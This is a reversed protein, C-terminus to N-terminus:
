LIYFLVKRQIEQSLTVKLAHHFATGPINVTMSRFGRMLGRYLAEMTDLLEKSKFSILADCINRFTMQFVFIWKLIRNIEMSALKGEQNQLLLFCEGALFKMIWLNVGTLSSINPQFFGYNQDHKGPTKTINLQAGYGM